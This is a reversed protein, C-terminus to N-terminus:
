QRKGNSLCNGTAAAFFRQASTQVAPLPVSGSQNVSPTGASVGTAALEMPQGISYNVAANGLAEAAKSGFQMM